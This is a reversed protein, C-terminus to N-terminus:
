IQLEFKKKDRVDIDKGLQIEILQIDTDAIITHKCGAKMTVVDGPNVKKVVGDVIVTGKGSLLAWTEDRREHSHYSMRHGSNIEAKITLSTQSTDIVEYKGWSKEAFKVSTEFEDVFPKISASQIPDTILVGENSAAVILNKVGLCLIPLNLSNVVHLNECKDNLVVNGITSKDMSETFTNWTGLDKWKGNFRLVQIKQTHEVIAYDFSIKQIESYRQFLDKYDSFPFLEKAKKIIYGLKFAFIGSNWLAGQSIYKEATIADPKEKFSLVRSVNKKDNPIIYGYKESPYTPNMGMLSLDFSFSLGFHQQM